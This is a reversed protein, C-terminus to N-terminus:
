SKETQFFTSKVKMKSICKEQIYIELNMTQKKEYKSTMGNVEIRTTESSSEVIVNIKTVKSM